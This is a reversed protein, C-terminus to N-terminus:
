LDNLADARFTAEMERAADLSHYCRTTYRTTVGGIDYTCGYGNATKFFAFNASALPGSSADLLKQLSALGSGKGSMPYEIGLADLAERAEAKTM